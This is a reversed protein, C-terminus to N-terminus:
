GKNIQEWEFEDELIGDFDDLEEKLRKRDLRDELMQRVRKRHHKTEADEEREHDNFYHEDHHENDRHLGM